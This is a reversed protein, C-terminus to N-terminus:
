WRKLKREISRTSGSGARSSAFTRRCWRNCSLRLNWLIMRRGTDRARWTDRRTHTTTTVVGIRVINTMGPRVREKHDFVFAVGPVMVREVWGKLIAPPAFMVSPYCFLLGETGQLAEADARTEPTQLPEDGHYAAREAESMFSEFPGGCLTRHTVEHGSEAFRALAADVLVRDPSDPAFADVVLIKM